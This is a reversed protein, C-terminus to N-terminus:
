QVRITGLIRLVEVVKNRSIIMFPHAVGSEVFGSGVTLSSLHVRFAKSRHQVRKVGIQYLYDTTVKSTEVRCRTYLRTICVLCRCYTDLRREGRAPVINSGLRPTM